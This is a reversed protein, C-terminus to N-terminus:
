LWALSSNHRRLYDPDLSGELLAVQEGDRDVLTRALLDSQTEFSPNVRLRYERDITFLHRDFAAHHLKDLPLVNSLDTRHDPYSRWPLVHAVDLLGPHDVGSVPCTNDYRRLVTERFAPDVSRAVTTTEYTDASFEDEPSGPSQGGTDTSLLSETLRYAGDDVFTLENEERLTQLVQRVKANPHNNNPFESRAREVTYNYVEELTVDRRGTQEYYRALGTQVLQKWTTM